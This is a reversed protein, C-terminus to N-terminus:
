FAFKIEIINFIINKETFVVLMHKKVLHSCNLNLVKKFTISKKLQHLWGSCTANVNPAQFAAFFFRGSKMKKPWTLWNKPPYPLHYIGDQAKFTYDPSLLGGGMLIVGGRPHELMQSYVLPIPLDPGM